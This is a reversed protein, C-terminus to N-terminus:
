LNLRPQNDYKDLPKGHRLGTLEYCHQHLEEQKKTETHKFFANPTNFM